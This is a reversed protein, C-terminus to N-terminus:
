FAELCDNKTILINWFTTKQYTLFNKEIQSEKSYKSWNKSNKETFKEEGVELLDLVAALILM